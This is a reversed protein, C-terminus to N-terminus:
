LLTSYLNKEYLFSNLCSVPTTLYLLTVLDLPPPADTLMSPCSELHLRLALVWGNLCSLLAGYGSLSFVASLDTPM